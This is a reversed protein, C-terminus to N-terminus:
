ERLTVKDIAELDAPTDIDRLVHSTDADTVVFVILLRALLDRMSRHGAKVLDQSLALASPSYRACLPQARGEHDRPVVCHNPTPVSHEALRRLFAGTLQPLDTAIVLTPAEIAEAALLAAGAAIAALPGGGSPEESVARLTTYGPGVEIVPDAVTALLTALHDALPRGGIELTAKDRGMRRSSGGTLLLAAPPSTSPPGAM